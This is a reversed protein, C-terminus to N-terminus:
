RRREDGPGQSEPKEAPRGEADLEVLGRDIVMALAAAETKIRGITIWKLREKDKGDLFVEYKKNCVRHVYIAM